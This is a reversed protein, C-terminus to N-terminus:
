LRGNAADRALMSSGIVVAAAVGLLVAGMAGATPAHERSVGFAPLLLPFCGAVFAGPFLLWRERLERAAVALLKSM